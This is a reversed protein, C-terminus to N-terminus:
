SGRPTARASPRARGANLPYRSLLISAACAAFLLVKTMVLLLVLVACQLLDLNEVGGQAVALLRGARRHRMLFFECIASSSSSIPTSMM